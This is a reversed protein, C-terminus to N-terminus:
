LRGNQPPFYIGKFYRLFWKWFGSIPKIEASFHEIESFDKSYWNTYGSCGIHLFTEWETFAYGMPAETYFFHQTFKNYGTILRIFGYKERYVVIGEKDVMDMIEGAKIPGSIGFNNIASVIGQSYNM